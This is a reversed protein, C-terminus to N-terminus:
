LSVNDLFRKQLLQGEAEVGALEKDLRSLRKSMPPHRSNWAALGEPEKGGKALGQLVVYLGDAQYGRESLLAVARKDADYEDAQPLGKEVVSEILAQTLQDFDSKQTLEKGLAGLAKGKMSAMVAHKRDVHVIEHALVGALQAENRLRMLLGKTIFVYGGPCAFANLGKTNLIGFRYRLDPRGAKKVLSLGVLSVYRTVAEDTYLGYKGVLHAAVERGLKIENDRGLNLEDRLAAAKGLGEAVDKLQLGACMAPLALSLLLLALSM